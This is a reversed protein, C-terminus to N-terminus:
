TRARLDRNLEDIVDSWDADVLLGERLFNAQAVTWFPAEALLVDPPLPSHRAIFDRIALPDAPLGLQAFLNNMDHLPNEM